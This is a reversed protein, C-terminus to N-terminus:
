ALSYDSTEVATGGTTYSDGALFRAETEINSIVDWSPIMGIFGGDALEFVAALAWTRCTFEGKVETERVCAEIANMWTGRNDEVVGLKLACLLSRSQTIDRIEPRFTWIQSDYTQHFLTGVKESMAIFIGWHFQFEASTTWLLLYVGKGEVRVGNDYRGPFSM